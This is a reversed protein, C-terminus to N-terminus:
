FYFFVTNGQVYVFAVHFFTALKPLFLRWYTSIPEILTLHSQFTFMDMAMVLETPKTLRGRIMM